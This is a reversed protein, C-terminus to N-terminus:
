RVRATVRIARTWAPAALAPERPQLLSSLAGALCAEFTGRVQSHAEVALNSEFPEAGDRRQANFRVLLVGQASDEQRQEWDELFCGAIARRAQPTTIAERVARQSPLEEFDAMHIDVQVADVTPTTAERTFFRAPPEERDFLAPDLGEFRLRSLADRVAVRAPHGPVTTRFCLDATRAGKERAEADSATRLMLEAAGCAIQPPVPADQEVFAAFAADYSEIAGEWDGADRLATAASALVEGAVSTARYRCEGDVCIQGSTCQDRGDCTAGAPPRRSAQARQAGVDRRDGAPDTPSRPEAQALPEATLSPRRDCGAACMAAGLLLSTPLLGRFPARPSTPSTRAM